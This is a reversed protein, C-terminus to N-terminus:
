DTADGKGSRRSHVGIEARRRRLREDNRVKAAIFTIATADTTAFRHAENELIDEDGEYRADARWGSLALIM